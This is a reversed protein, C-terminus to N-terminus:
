FCLDTSSGTIKGAYTNYSSSPSNYMAFGDHHKTTIVIYKMGAMKTDKVWKEANFLTPNFDNALSGYEKLSLKEYIMFHENGKYPKGKWDGAAQSYLGWHLFLGFKADKWWEIRNSNQETKENGSKKQGFSFNTFCSCPYLYCFM